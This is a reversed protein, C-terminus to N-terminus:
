FLIFVVYYFAASKLLVHQHHILGYETSLDLAM